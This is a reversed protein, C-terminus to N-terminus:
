LEEPSSLPCLCSYANVKRAFNGDFRKVESRFSNKGTQDSINVKKFTKTWENKKTDRLEKREEIRYYRIKQDELWM